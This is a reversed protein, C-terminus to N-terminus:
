VLLTLTSSYSAVRTFTNGMYGENVTEKGRGEVAIPINSTGKKM